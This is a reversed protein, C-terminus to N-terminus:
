TISQVYVALTHAVKLVARKLRERMGGSKISLLKCDINDSIHQGNACDDREAEPRVLDM